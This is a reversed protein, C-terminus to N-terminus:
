KDRCDRLISKLEIVHDRPVVTWMDVLIALGTRREECDDSKLLALAIPLAKDNLIAVALKRREDDASAMLAAVNSIAGEGFEAVATAVRMRQLVDLAVLNMFMSDNAISRTVTPITRVTLAWEILIASAPAAAEGIAALADIASDRL